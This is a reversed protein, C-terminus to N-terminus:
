NLCFGEFIIKKRKECNKPGGFSHGFCHQYISKWHAQQKLSESEIEELRLFQQIVCEGQEDARNVLQVLNTIDYLLCAVNGALIFKM